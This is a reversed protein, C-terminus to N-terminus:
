RLSRDDGDFEIGALLGAANELVDYAVGTAASLAGTFVAVLVLRRKRIM